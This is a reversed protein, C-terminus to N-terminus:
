FRATKLWKALNIARWIKGSYPIRNLTSFSVHMCVHVYGYVCVCVCVYEFVFVCVCMSLCLCVCM